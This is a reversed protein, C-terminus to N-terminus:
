TTSNRLLNITETIMVDRTTTSRWIEMLKRYVTDQAIPLPSSRLTVLLALDEPGYDSLDLVETFAQEGPGLEGLSKTTGILALYVYM